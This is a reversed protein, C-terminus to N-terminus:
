RPTPGSDTLLILQVTHNSDVVFPRIRFLARVMTEPGFPHYPTM